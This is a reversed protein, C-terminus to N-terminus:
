LVCLVVFAADHACISADVICNECVVGVVVVLLCLREGVAMITLSCCVLAARSVWCRALVCFFSVWEVLHFCFAFGCFFIIVSCGVCGCVPAHVVIVAFVSVM